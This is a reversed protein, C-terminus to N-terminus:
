TRILSIHDELFDITEWAKCGACRAGMGDTRRLEPFDDVDRTECRIEGYGRKLLWIVLKCAWTEFRDVIRM